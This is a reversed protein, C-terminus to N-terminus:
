HLSSGLLNQCVRGLLSLNDPQLRWTTHLETSSSDQFYVISLLFLYDLCWIVLYHAFPRSTSAPALNLGEKKCSSLDSLRPTCPVIYLLIETSSSLCCQFCRVVSQFSLDRSLFVAEVSVGSVEM